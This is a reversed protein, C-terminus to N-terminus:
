AELYTKMASRKERNFAKWDTFGALKLLMRGCEWARRERIIMLVKAEPAIITAFMSAMKISYKRRWESLCTLDVHHGLEHAFEIVKLKQAQGGNLYVIRTKSNYSSFFADGEVKVGMLEAQKLLFEYPSM